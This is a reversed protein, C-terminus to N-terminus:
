FNNNNGRGNKKLLYAAIVAVIIAAGLSILVIGIVKEKGSKKSDDDEDKDEDKSKDEDDAEAPEEKQKTAEIKKKSKTKLYDRSVWGAKGNYNTYAWSTDTDITCNYDIDTGKDLVLVVSFGTGPGCRLNLNDTTTATTTEDETNGFEPAINTGPDCTDGPAIVVFYDDADPTKSPDMNPDTTGYLGKRGDEFSYESWVYFPQGGDIRGGVIGDDFDTYGDYYEAGEIKIAVTYLLTSPMGMDATAVLSCSLILVMSLLLGYITKISKKM